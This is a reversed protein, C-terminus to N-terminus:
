PPAPPSPGSSSVMEERVVAVQGYQPDPSVAMSFGNPGVGHLDM